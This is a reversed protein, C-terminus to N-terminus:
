DVAKNWKGLPCKSEKLKTKLPMFCGCKKCQKSLQIFEPCNECISMRYDVLEQESKPKNPDFLHWPKTTM